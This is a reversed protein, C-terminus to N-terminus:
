EWWSNLFFIRVFQPHLAKVKAELDKAQAESIEQPMNPYAYLYPNMCAGFGAIPDGIPKSTITFEARPSPSTTAAHPSRPAACGFQCLTFLVVVVGPRRLKRPKM